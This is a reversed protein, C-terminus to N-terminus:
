IYSISKIKNTWSNQRLNWTKDLNLRTETYDKDFRKKMLQFDAIRIIEQDIYSTRLSSNIHEFNLCIRKQNEM